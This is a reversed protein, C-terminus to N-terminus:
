GRQLGRAEMQQSCEEKLWPYASAIAGLVGTKILDRAADVGIKGAVGDLRNDYDTLAHRLYNVCLRQLFEPNSNASAPERDEYLRHRKQRENYHECALGILEEKPFSPVTIEKSRLEAILRRKKTKLAKKAALKRSSRRRGVEDAAAKFEDTAEAAVVRDWAYLRMPAGSRYHPNPREDDHAGLFRAILAGTWGRDKRLQSPTIMDMDTM